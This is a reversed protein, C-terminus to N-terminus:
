FVVTWGERAAQEATYESPRQQSLVNVAARYRTGSDDAVHIQYHPSDNGSERRTDVARGILVGYTKM